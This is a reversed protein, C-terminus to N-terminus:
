SNEHPTYSASWTGAIEQWFGPGRQRLLYITVFLRHLLLKWELEGGKLGLIEEAVLRQNRVRKQAIGKFDRKWSSTSDHHDFRASTHFYLRHTKGVRASLHVDEMFSYGPFCPFREKLFVNTRYFVCGSHLWDAPILDESQPESYSPFCNIAPGFLKGGYTPHDFGAQIRYYWWLLGRPVPRDAGTMRAVVGGTREEKDFEFVRCLKECSDPYLTVDDDMFAVLPTKVLRVGQNRQEAASPIEAREYCLDLGNNMAGVMEKTREDRSSDIIIVQAPKREQAALSELLRRLDEPREFTAIVPTYSLLSM